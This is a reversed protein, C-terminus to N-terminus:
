LLLLLSPALSQQFLRALALIPFIRSYIHLNFFVKLMQIPKIWLKALKQGM